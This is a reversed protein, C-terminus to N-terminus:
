GEDRYRRMKIAALILAVGVVIGIWINLHAFQQYSQMLLEGFNHGNDNIHLGDSSTLWSGPVISGFWRASVFKWFSSMDLGFGLMANMWSVIVGGLVPVGVAWLFPKTKAWSSVFLLYAITPLAWLAYLPIMSLFQVATLYFNIDGLVYGFLNLGNFAVILMFVFLNFLSMILVAVSALTPAVLSATIVKSIVTDKDSIPLSKWFLISRDKRDDFLASLCYFFVVFVMAIMIPVGFFPYGNALNQAFEIKDPESVKSLAAQINMDSNGGFHIGSNKGLVSAIILSGITFLSIIGSIVIPTWFFGGKHEWQERKLLWKQTNM